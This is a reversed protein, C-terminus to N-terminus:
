TKITTLEKVEKYKDSWGDFRIDMAGKEDISLIRGICWQNRSDMVDLYDGM